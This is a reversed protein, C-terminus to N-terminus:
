YISIKIEGDIVKCVAPSEKLAEMLNHHTNRYHCRECEFEPPCVKGWGPSQTRYRMIGLVDSKACYPCAIREEAYDLPRYKFMTQPEREKWEWKEM